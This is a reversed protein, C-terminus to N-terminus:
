KRVLVFLSAQSVTNDHKGEFLGDSRSTKPKFDIDSVEAKRKSRVDLMDMTILRRSLPSIVWCKTTTFSLRADDASLRLIVSFHGGGTTVGSTAQPFPFGGKINVPGHM